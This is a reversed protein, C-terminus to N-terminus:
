VRGRRFFGSLGTGAMAFAAFIGACLTYLVNKASFIRKAQNVLAVIVPQDARGTSKMALFGILINLLLNLNNMSKLSM